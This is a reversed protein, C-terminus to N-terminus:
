VFQTDSKSVNVQRTSIIIFIKRFLIGFVLKRKRYLKQEKSCNDIKSKCKSYSNSVQGWDVTCEYM